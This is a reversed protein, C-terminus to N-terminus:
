LEGMVPLRREDRIAQITFGSVSLANSLAAHTAAGDHEIEVRGISVDCWRVGPVPTLATQVARVCHVSQMGDLLVISRM